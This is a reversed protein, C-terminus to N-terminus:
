RYDERGRVKVKGMNADTEVYYANNTSRLTIRGSTDAVGEALRLGIARGTGISGKSGVTANGRADFAVFPFRTWTARQSNPEKPYAVRMDGFSSFYNWESNASGDGFLPTFPTGVKAGIADWNITSYNQGAINLVVCGQPLKEWDKELVWLNPTSSQRNSYVVAWYRWPEEPLGDQPSGGRAAIVLRADTNRAIATQRALSLGSALQGAGVRTTPGQMQRMSVGVVGMVIAMIAVVSILEVLSFAAHGGCHLITKRSYRQKRPMM